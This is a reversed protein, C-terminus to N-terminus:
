KAPIAEAPPAPSPATVPAPKSFKGAVASFATYVMPVVFLTLVTSSIMGGIVCVGMPRRSEAGAGMGIAIPIIGAITSLATMLIPRLRVTGANVIAERPDVGKEVEQNAFEVLLIANKTVLGVLLVFGILSFLNINMAPVEKIVGTKGLYDVLWLLGLAGVGALPVSLLVTLPHLFSEFQAALVMYTIILALVLM